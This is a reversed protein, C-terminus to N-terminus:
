CVHLIGCLAGDYSKFHDQICRQTKQSFRGICGTEYNTKIHATLYPRNSFLTLNLPLPIIFYSFKDIKRALFEHWQTMLIFLAYPFKGKNERM